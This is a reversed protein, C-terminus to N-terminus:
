GVCGLRRCENYNDFIYFQDYKEISNKLRPITEHCIKGLMRHNDWYEKTESRHHRIEDSMIRRCEDRKDKLREM